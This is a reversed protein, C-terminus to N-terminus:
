LHSCEPCENEILELWSLIEAENLLKDSEDAIEQKRLEGYRDTIFVSPHPGSRSLHIYTFKETMERGLDSLMPFPIDRLIAAARLDSLADFSVSLVETEMEEMREYVHALDNIKKLCQGCKVGHNFFIVLNRKQKLDWTSVERNRNSPLKLLPIVEKLNLKFPFNMEIKTEM